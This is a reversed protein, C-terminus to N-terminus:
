NLISNIYIGGAVNIISIKMYNIIMLLNLDEGVTKSLSLSVLLVMIYLLISPRNLKLKYSIVM